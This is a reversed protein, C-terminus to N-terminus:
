GEGVVVFTIERRDAKTGVRVQRTVSPIDSAIVEKPCPLESVDRVIGGTTAQELTIGFKGVVEYHDHLPDLPPSPMREGSLKSGLFM